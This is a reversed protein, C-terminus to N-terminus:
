RAKKVGVRKCLSYIACTSCHPSIPTCVNQGWMVLLRNFEIWYKKDLVKQLALETEEPTKTTILGLRNSIRHVHVDVCIAPQGFAVGLVLNATKPGVGKISVLEQYTQPVVGGFKTIITQATEQLIQAKKKYFGIRRIIDELQHTSLKLLQEPTRARAFLDHVVGITMSDKARLSLLCSILLLFPDKGYIAIVSDSLPSPYNKTYKRLLDILKNIEMSCAGM